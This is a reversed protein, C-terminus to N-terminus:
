QLAFLQTMFILISM